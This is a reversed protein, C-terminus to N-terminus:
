FTKPLSNWTSVLLIWMTLVSISSKCGFVMLFKSLSLLWGFRMCVSPLLNNQFWGSLNQSSYRFINYSILPLLDEKWLFSAKRMSIYNWSLGGMHRRSQNKLIGRLPIWPRCLFIFWYSIHSGQFIPFPGLLIEMM